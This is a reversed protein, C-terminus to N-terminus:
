AVTLVFTVDTSLGLTDFVRFTFTYDDAPIEPALKMIRITNYIPGQASAQPIGIVSARMPPVTAPAIPAPNTLTQIRVPNADSNAQFVEMWNFDFFSCDGLLMQYSVSAKWTMAGNSADPPNNSAPAFVSENMSAYLSGILNGRSFRQIWTHTPMSYWNYYGSNEGAVFDISAWPFFNFPLGIPWVGAVYQTVNRLTPNYDVTVVALPVVVGDSTTYETESGDFTTESIPYFGRVRGDMTIVPIITQTSPNQLPLDYQNM